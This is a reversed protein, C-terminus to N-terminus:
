DIASASGTTSLRLTDVKRRAESLYLSFPFEEVVRTFAALADADQGALRYSRGLRMLVADVPVPSDVAGTERELLAIAGAHDGTVIHAEALGLRAMRGHIGESDADIVRQYDEKAEEHRGLTMLAAAAEYRATIGSPLRPYTDAVVLLRPVVAELKAKESPFSNEPQEWPEDSAGAATADAGDSPPPIVASNLAAMAGALLDGARDNQQEQWVVYGAAGLLGLLVVVVTGIVARGNGRAAEQVQRVIRALLNEKLHHREERRM